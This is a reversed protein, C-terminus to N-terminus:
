QGLRYFKRASFHVCVCEEMCHIQHDQLLDVKLVTCKSLFGKVYEHSPPLFLRFPKVNSVKRPKKGLSPAALMATFPNLDGCLASLDVLVVGFVFCRGDRTSGRLVNSFFELEVANDM